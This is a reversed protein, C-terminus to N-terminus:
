LDILHANRPTNVVKEHLLSEVVQHGPTDSATIIKHKCLKSQLVIEAHHSQKLRIILRQNDQGTDNKTNWIPEVILVHVVGLAFGFDPKIVKRRILLRHHDLIVSKIYLQILPYLTIDKRRIYI